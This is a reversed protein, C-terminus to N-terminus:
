HTSSGSGARHRGSPRGPRRCETLQRLSEVIGGRRTQRSEQSQQETQALDTARTEASERRQPPQKFTVILRETSLSPMRGTLGSPLSDKLLMLQWFQDLRGKGSGKTFYHYKRSKRATRRVLGLLIVIESPRSGTICIAATKPM